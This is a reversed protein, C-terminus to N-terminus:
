VIPIRSSRDVGKEKSKERNVRRLPLISEKRQIEFSKEFKANEMDIRKIYGAIQFDYKIAFDKVKQYEDRDTSHDYYNTYCLATELLSIMDNREIQVLEASAM